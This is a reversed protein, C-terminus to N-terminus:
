PGALMGNVYIALTRAARDWTLGLHYWYGKRLLVKEAYVLPALAFDLTGWVSGSYFKAVIAPYGNTVFVGFRAEPIARAPSADSILPFDFTVNSKSHNSPFFTMDELPSFWLTMTGQPQRHLETKFTARTKLSTVHLGTWDGVKRFSHPGDIALGTADSLPLELQSASKVAASAGTEAGSLVAISSLAAAAGAAGVFARRSLLLEGQHADPNNNDM